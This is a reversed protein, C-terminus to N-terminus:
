RDNESTVRPGRGHLETYTGHGDDAPNMRERGNSSLHGAPSM